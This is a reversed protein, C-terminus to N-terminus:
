RKSKQAELEALRRKALVTVSFTDTSNTEAKKYDQEAVDFLGFTQANRGLIYWDAPQLLRSQGLYELLVRKAQDPRNSEAWVTALTNLANRRNRVGPGTAQLATELTHSPLHPEFLEAWAMSNDQPVTLTLKEEKLFQRAATADPRYLYFQLLNQQAQTSSPNQALDAKLIKELQDFQGSRRLLAQYLIMGWDSSDNRLITPIEIPVLLDPNSLIGSAIIQALAKQPNGSLKSLDSIAAAVDRDTQPATARLADIMMQIGSTQASRPSDWLTKLATAIYLNSQRLDEFFWELWQIAQAKKRNNLFNQLSDVLSCPLETLAVAKLASGSRLLFFGDVFEQRDNWLTVHYGEEPSGQLKQKNIMLTADRYYSLPLNAEIANESLDSWMQPFGSPIDPNTMLKILTPDMLMQFVSYDSGQSQGLLQLFTLYFNQPQVLPEPTDPTPQLKSFFDARQNLNSSDSSLLAEQRLIASAEPYHQ